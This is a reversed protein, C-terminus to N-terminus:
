ALARTKLMNLMARAENERQEHKEAEAMCANKAERAENVAAEAEIIFRDRLVQSPVSRGNGNTSM